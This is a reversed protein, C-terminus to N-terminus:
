GAVTENDQLSEVATDGNCWSVDPEARARDADTAQAKREISTPLHPVKIRLLQTCSMDLFCM